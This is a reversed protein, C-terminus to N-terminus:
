PGRLEDRVAARQRRPRPLRKADSRVKRGNLPQVERSNGEEFLERFARIQRRSVSISDALVVFRVPETFPPTTLSGTYRFSEPQEPLLARLRVDSVDRTDNPQDPLDHFMPEIAGNERGREIFVAVVLIAEDARTHVFHMELPTDRGEIEHESPTHWHFQELDWRVGNRIIHAAGAPVEARVTAFEGPSGTNVLTVDVRRPYRFRIRPLRRVFTIESRRLDIPSQRPLPATSRGGAGAWGSAAASAPITATLALCAASLIAKRRDLKLGEETEVPEPSTERDPLCM